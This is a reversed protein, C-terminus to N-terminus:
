EVLTKLKDDMVNKLIMLARLTVWQSPALRTELPVVVPFTDHKSRENYTRQLKWTGDKAQKKLLYTISDEMRSDQVGARILIRLVEVFDPWYFPPFTLQTLKANMVKDLQHSRKYVRHTLIFDLGEQLARNTDDNRYAEPLDVLAKVIPVVGRYCTHRGWCGDDPNEVSEDGDAHWMKNLVWQLGAQVRPDEGLESRMFAWLLWGNYCPVPYANIHSAFGGNEVTAIDLIFHAAAQMQPHMPDLGLEHLLLWRWATGKMKEFYHTPKGWHGDAHQGELINVVATSGAIAQQAAVVQPDDPARDLLYRLTQHRISPYPSALMWDMPAKGLAKKIKDQPGM